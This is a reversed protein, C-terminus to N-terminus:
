AKVEENMKKELYNKIIDFAKLQGKLEIIKNTNTIDVSALEDILADRLSYMMFQFEPKLAITKIELIFAASKTNFPQLETYAKSVVASASIRSLDNQLDHIIQGNSVIYRLGKIIFLIWKFM